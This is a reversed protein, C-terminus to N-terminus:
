ENAGGNKAQGNKPPDIRALLLQQTRDAGLHLLCPAESQTLNYIGAEFVRDKKKGITWAARQTKKNVSGFVETTTDTLGEYYNGRIIGDKNVALQFLNNSKKEDGQLLAFVGLPKWDGTAPADAKVGADALNIAQQAYQAPTGADQGGVYVTNDQIVIDSGYDYSYPQATFGLYPYLVPWTPAMWALGAAWGPAFWCGPYRDWWGPRFCNYYGFGTRAFGGRYAM